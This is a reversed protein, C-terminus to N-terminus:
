LQRLLATTAAALVVVVVFPAKRWAAIVAVAIGAAREDLVLDQGTSFTDKAILATLLAAPVLALCRELPAPLRRSGIIVLGLVKFGFAVAALVLILGWTM